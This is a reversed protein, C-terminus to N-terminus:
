GMPKWIVHFHGMLPIRGQTMVGDVQLGCRELMRRSARNFLDSTAMLRGSEPSTDMSLVAALLLRRALSRGRLQESVAVGREYLNGDRVTFCWYGVLAGDVEAIAVRHFEALTSAALSPQLHKMRDLLTLRPKCGKLVRVKVEDDVEIGDLAAIVSDLPATYQAELSLGLSGESAKLAAKAAFGMPGYRRWKEKWHRPDTGM